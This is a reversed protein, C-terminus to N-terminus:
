STIPPSHGGAVPPDGALYSASSDVLARGKLASRGLLMRFTMNDRNTLTIEIPWTHGGLTVPTRIVIRKERHGGSDTVWREDLIDAVCVTEISRNRQVPHIGFQVRWKGESEFKQVMFAHLASTRAGTDVKVKLSHIGLEPLALWERWGIRFKNTHSDTM